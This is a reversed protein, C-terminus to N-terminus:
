LCHDVSFGLAWLTIVHRSLRSATSSAEPSGCGGGVVPLGLLGVAESRVGWGNEAQIVSVCPGPPPCVPDTNLQCLNTPHSVASRGWDLGGEQWQGSELRTLHKEAGPEM